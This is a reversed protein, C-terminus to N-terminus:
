RKPLLDQTEKDLALRVERSMIWQSPQKLQVHKKQLKDLVWNMISKTPVQGRITKGPLSNVKKGSPSNFCLSM